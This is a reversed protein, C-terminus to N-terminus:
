EKKTRDLIHFSHDSEQMGLTEEWDGPFWEPFHRDGDSVRADVMTLYMRDALPLFTEYVKEGGIIMLESGCRYRFAHDLVEGVNRAHHIKDGIVERSSLVINFRDVLPKNGISALTGPGMVVPKGVTLMKFRQMDARVRWPIKGDKGICRNVDMAAILSIM